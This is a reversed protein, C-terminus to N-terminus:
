TITRNIENIVGFMSLAYLRSDICVGNQSQVELWERLKEIEIFCTEIYESDNQIVSSIMETKGRVLVGM